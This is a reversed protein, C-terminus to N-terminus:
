IFAAFIQILLCCLGVGVLIKDVKENKKRIVLTVVILIEIIITLIYIIGLGM